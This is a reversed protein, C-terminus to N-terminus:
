PCAERASSGQGVIKRLLKFRRQVARIGDLTLETAAAHRAHEEAGLSREASLDHDLDECGLQGAADAGISKTEFDLDCGRQVVRMDDWKECRALRSAV